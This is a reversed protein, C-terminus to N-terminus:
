RRDGGVWKAAFAALEAATALDLKNKIRSKFTAVTSIGLGLVAAIQRTGLGRGIHELVEIERDSLRDVPPGGGSRPDTGVFRLLLKGSMRPSVFIEGALVRRMAEIILPPAEQKLVYGQAGAALAREAYTVDDHVSLVVVPTEIKRARIDKILEIGSRGVISIDVIALDFRCSGLQQLAEAASEAECCVDMDPQAEIRRRLGERVIPHDDVLMVRLRRRDFDTRDPM